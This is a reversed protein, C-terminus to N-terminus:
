TKQRLRAQEVRHCWHEPTHAHSWPAPRSVALRWRLHQCWRSSQRNGHPWQHHAQSTARPWCWPRWHSPTCPSPIQFASKRGLRVTWHAITWMRAKNDAPTLGSPSCSTGTGPALQWCPLHRCGMAAWCCRGTHPTSWRPELNTRWAAAKQRCIQKNKCFFLIMSELLFM